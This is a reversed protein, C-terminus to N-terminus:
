QCETHVWFIPNDHSADLHGFLMKSLVHIQEHKIITSLISGDRTMFEKVVIDTSGITCAVPNGSCFEADDPAIFITVLFLESLVSDFTDSDLLEPIDGLERFCELMDTTHEKELTTLGRSPFGEPNDFGQEGDCSIVLFLVVFSVVLLPLRGYILNIKTM